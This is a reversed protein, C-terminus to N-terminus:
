IDVYHMYHKGIVSNDKTIYIHLLHVFKLHNEKPKLKEVFQLNVITLTLNHTNASLLSLNERASLDLQQASLM